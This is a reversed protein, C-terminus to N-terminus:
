TFLCCGISSSFFAKQSYGYKDGISTMNALATPTAGLGHGILGSIMVASDFNKGLVKFCIFISYIIIFFLKAYLLLLYQAM